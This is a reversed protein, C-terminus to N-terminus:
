NNNNISERWNDFARLDFEQFNSGYVRGTYVYVSNLSRLAYNIGHQSNDIIVWELMPLDNCSVIDKIRPSNIFDIPHTITIRKYEHKEETNM